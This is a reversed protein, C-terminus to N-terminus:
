WNGIDDIEGEAEADEGLMTQDESDPGRTIMSDRM